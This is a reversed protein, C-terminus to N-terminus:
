LEKLKLEPMVFKPKQLELHAAIDSLSGHLQELAWFIFIHTMFVWAGKGKVSEVLRHSQFLEM